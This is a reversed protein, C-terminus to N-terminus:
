NCSTEWGFTDDRIKYWFNVYIELDIERERGTQRDTERERAGESESEWASEREGENKSEKAIERETM